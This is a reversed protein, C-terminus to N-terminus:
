PNTNDQYGIEFQSIKDGDMTFIHIVFQDTLLVGELDYVVQHIQIIIKGNNEKLDLPTVTSDVLKFQRTWYEKVGDHGFVFGGDMGNAWKVDSTMHRIVM